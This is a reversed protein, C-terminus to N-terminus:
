NPPTYQGFLHKEYHLQKFSQEMEPFASLLLMELLDFALQKLCVSSQFWYNFLSFWYKLKHLECDSHKGSPLLLSRRCM